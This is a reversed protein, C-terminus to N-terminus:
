CSGNKTDNLAWYYGCVAFFRVLGYLAESIDEDQMILDMKVRARRDIMEDWQNLIKETEQGMYADVRDNIKKAHEFEDEAQGFASKIWDEM